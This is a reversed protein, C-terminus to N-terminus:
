AVQLVIKGQIHGQEAREHAKAADALPHVSDLGVRLLGADALRALEALQGGDSRVQGSPFTIGRAAARERHYEGLFVPSITGGPAVVPVLRHGEPGGVTDFLHDVDRVVDEPPTVTYDVFEAAGLDRLFREHRGSAVAIVRADRTNTALQILFHGVGGAAGNVLVTRGPELRVHDFLFQYATLGAMPIGAAEVHDLAAPKRALHSAPSTTYEAYGRGGDGDVPPFRVLGFVEDGVEWETVGPGLAAVVGSIDSGPTFPLRLAPRLEEPINAFGTRAYWDPPNLGAARVRVLVDGPGPEPRPVEEAVLVEPGGFAHVRVATMTQETM